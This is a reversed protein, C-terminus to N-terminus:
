KENVLVKIMDEIAKANVGGSGVRMLRILGQSDILVATPVLNVDYKRTADNWQERTLTLLHHDLKHRTAVSQLSSQGATISVIRLGKDHYEKHWERLHPLTAICAGCGTSFFQVLVVKGKLESLKVVDSNLAITGEIQPAPLGILAEHSRKQATATGSFGWTLLVALAVLAGVLRKPCNM